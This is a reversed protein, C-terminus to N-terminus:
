GLPAPVPVRPVASCVPAQARARLSDAMRKAIRALDGNTFNDHSGSNRIIGEVVGVPLEDRMLEYLFSMLRDDNAYVRGTQEFLKQDEPGRGCPKNHAQNKCTHMLISM